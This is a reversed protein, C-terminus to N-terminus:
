TLHISFYPSLACLISFINVKEKKGSPTKVYGSLQAGQFDPVECCDVPADFQQQVCPGAELIEELLPTKVKELAPAPTANVKFPSGRVPEGGFLVEVEHPGLEEPTYEVAFIGEKEEVVKVPIEKGNPGKANVNVKGKGAKTADVEFPSSFGVHPRKLGPGSCKVKSADGSPEGNVNFPAGPVVDGGYKPSM